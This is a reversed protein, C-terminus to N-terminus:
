PCEGLDTYRFRQDRSGTAKTKLRVEVLGTVLADHTVYCVWTWGRMDELVVEYVVRMSGRIEVPMPRVSDVRVVNESPLGFANLPYLLAEESLVEGGGACTAGQAMHRQSAALYPLFRQLGSREEIAAPGSAPRLVVGEPRVRICPADGPLDPSFVEVCEGPRADLLPNKLDFTDVTAPKQRRLLTINVWLLCLAMALLAAVSVWEVWRSPRAALPESM